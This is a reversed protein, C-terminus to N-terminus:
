GNNGVAGSVLSLHSGPVPCFLATTSQKLGEYMNCPHHNVQGQTFLQIETNECKFQKGPRASASTTSHHHTHKEATKKEHAYEEDSM